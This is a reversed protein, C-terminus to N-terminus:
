QQQPERGGRKRGRRGGEGGRGGKVETWHWLCMWCWQKLSPIHSNKKKMLEGNFFIM